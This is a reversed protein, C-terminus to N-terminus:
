FIGQLFTGSCCATSLKEATMSVGFRWSSSAEWWDDKHSLLCTWLVCIGCVSVCSCFIFVAVQISQCLWCLEAVTWSGSCGESGMRVMLGGASVMDALFAKGLPRFCSQEVEGWKWLFVFLRLKSEQFTPGYCLIVWLVVRMQLRYDKRVM